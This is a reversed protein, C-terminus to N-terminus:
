DEVAGGRTVGAVVIATLVIKFSRNPFDKTADGATNQSAAPGLTLAFLGALAIFRRSLTM